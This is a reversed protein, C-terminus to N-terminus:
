TSLRRTLRAFTNTTLRTACPTVDTSIVDMIEAVAYDLAMETPLTM